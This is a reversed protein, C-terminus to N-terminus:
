IAGYVFNQSLQSVHWSVGARRKLALTPPIALVTARTVETPILATSSVEDSIAGDSAALSTTALMHCQRLMSQSAM